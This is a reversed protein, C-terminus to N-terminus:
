RKGGKKKKKKKKTVAQKTKKAKKKKRGVQAEQNKVGNVIKARLISLGVLLALSVIIYILETLEM